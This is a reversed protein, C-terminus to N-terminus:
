QLFQAPLEKVSRYLKLERKEYNDTKIPKGSDLDFLSTTERIRVGTQNFYIRREERVDGHSTRLDSFVFALSGDTRFYYEPYLAWDGSPTAIVMKVFSVKDGVRYATAEYVGDGRDVDSKGPQWSDGDLHYEAKVMTKAKLREQAAAYLQRIALIEPPDTQSAAGSPAVLSWLLGLAALGTWLLRKPHAIM